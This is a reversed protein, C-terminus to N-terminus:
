GGGKRASSALFDDLAHMIKANFEARASANRSGQRVIASLHTKNARLIAAMEADVSEMEFFFSEWNKEFLIPKM